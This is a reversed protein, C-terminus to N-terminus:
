GPELSIGREYDESATQKNIRKRLRDQTELSRRARMLERTTKRCLLMAAAPPEGECRSHMAQQKRHRPRKPRSGLGVSKHAARFSPIARRPDHQNNDPLLLPYVTAVPKRLLCAPPHRTTPDQHHIGKNKTLTANLSNAM